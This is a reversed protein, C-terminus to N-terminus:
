KIKTKKFNFKFQYILILFQYTIIFSLIPIIENSIKTPMFLSLSNNFAHMIIPTYITQDRYFSLSLNLGFLTGILIQLAVYYVSFYGNFMNILHFLGFLISPVLVSIFLSKCRKVMIYFIVGRFLIEEYIPGVLLFIIIKFWDLSTINNYQLKLQDFTQFTNIVNITNNTSNTTSDTTSNTTSNSIQSQDILDYSINTFKFFWQNTYYQFFLVIGFIIAEFALFIFLTKFNIKIKSFIGLWKPTKITHYQKKQHNLNSPSENIKKVYNISKKISDLNLLSGFRKLIYFICLIISLLFSISRSTYLATNNNNNNNNNNNTTTTTTNNNNNTETSLLFEFIYPEIIFVILFNLINSVLIMEGMCGMCELIAILNLMKNGLKSNNNNEDGIESQENDDSDNNNNNNNNNKSNITNQNEDTINNNKNNLSTEIYDNEINNNKNNNIKNLKKNKLNTDNKIQQNISSSSNISNDVDDVYEGDGDGRKNLKSKKGM